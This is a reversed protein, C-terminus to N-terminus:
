RSPLSRASASRDGSLGSGPGLDFAYLLGGALALTTVSGIGGVCTGVRDSTLRYGAFDLSADFWLARTIQLGVGAEAGLAFGPGSVDSCTFVVPPTFGGTGTLGKADVDQWALGARLGLFIDIGSRRFPFARAALELATAAYGADVAYPGDITPVRGLDARTVGFGLSYEPTLAFFGALRFGLGAREEGEGGASSPGLRGGGRLALEVALAHGDQWPDYPPPLPARESM